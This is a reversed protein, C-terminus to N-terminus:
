NLDIDLDLEMVIIRYVFIIDDISEIDIDYEHSFEYEITILNKYKKEYVNIVVEKIELGEVSFNTLFRWEIKKNSYEIYNWGNEKKIEIGKEEFKMNIYKKMIKKYEEKKTILGGFGYQRYKIKKQIYRNQLIKHKEKEIIPKRELGFGKQLYKTLYSLIRKTYVRKINTYGVYNKYAKKLDVFGIKKDYEKLVLIHYHPVGR